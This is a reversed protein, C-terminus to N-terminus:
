GQGIASRCRGIAPRLVPAPLKLFPQVSSSRCRKSPPYQRRFPRHKRQGPAFFFFFTWLSNRRGLAASQLCHVPRTRALRAHEVTEFENVRFARPNEPPASLFHGMIRPRVGGRIPGRGRLAPGKPGPPPAGASLLGRSKFLPPKDSLDLSSRHRKEVLFGCERPGGEFFDEFCFFVCAV